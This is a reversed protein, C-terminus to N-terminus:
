ARNQFLLPIKKVVHDVAITRSGELTTLTVQAKTVSIPTQANVDWCDTARRLYIAVGGSRKAVVTTRVDAATSTVKLRIEPPNFTPGPDDLWGLFSGMATAIPKPRWLPGTGTTTAFMGFNSEIVDKAGSDPDDLLEYWIVNCGRDAAELVASPGYLAAVSEPVPRHGRVTALANTYGTETIWTPRGSWYRNIWALREDLLQDPYHGGPYRHMGSYDMFRAIGAAGLAAYDSETAAVAHLSPGVVKVHALRPDGKVARWIVKQKAVTRAVWDSPPAGGDREHNPENVGEVFRCVDAANNGIHRIRAILGEDSLTWDEPSVLMGWKIGHKRAATAALMTGPNKEDYAGRFYSAGTQALAAMWETTYQYGSVRFTPHACVGFANHVAQASLPKVFPLQSALGRSLPRANAYRPVAISFAGAAGGILLGRRSFGASPTSISM